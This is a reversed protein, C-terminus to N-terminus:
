SFVFVYKLCLLLINIAAFVCDWFVFLSKVLIVKYFHFCLKEASVMQDINAKDQLAIGIFFM